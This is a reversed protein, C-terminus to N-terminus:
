KALLSLDFPWRCWCCSADRPCNCCHAAAVIWRTVPVVVIRVVAVVIDATPCCELIMGSQM